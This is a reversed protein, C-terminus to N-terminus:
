PMFLQFLFLLFACCLFIGACYFPAFWTVKEIESASKGRMWVFLGILFILYPIGAIGISSIIVLYVFGWGKLSVRESHFLLFLVGPFAIPLFFSLKLFLRERREKRQKPEDYDTPNIM